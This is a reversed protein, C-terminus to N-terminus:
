MCFKAFEIQTRPDSKAAGSFKEILEKYLTEAEKYEYLTDKFSGVTIGCRAAAQDIKIILANYLFQKAACVCVEGLVDIASRNLNLFDEDYEIYFELEWETYTYPPAHVKILDPGPLLEIVPTLFVDHGTQGGLMNRAHADLSSASIDSAIYDLGTDMLTPKISVVGVIAKNERERPPIRYISYKSYEDYDFTLELMESKLRCDKLKGANMNCDPRVFKDIIIRKLENELIFPKPPEQYMDQYYSMVGEMLITKPISRTIHNIAYQIANLAM